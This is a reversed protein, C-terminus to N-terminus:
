SEAFEGHMGSTVTRDQVRVPVPGLRVVGTESSQAMKNVYAKMDREHALDGPAYSPSLLLIETTDDCPVLKEFLPNKVDGIKIIRTHLDTGETALLKAEDSILFKYITGRFTVAYFFRSKLDSTMNESSPMNFGLGAKVSTIDESLNYVLPYITPLESMADDPWVLFVIVHHSESVILYKKDDTFEM